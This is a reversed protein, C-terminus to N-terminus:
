RQGPEFMEVVSPTPTPLATTANKPQFYPQLNSFWAGVCLVALLILGSNTYLKQPM